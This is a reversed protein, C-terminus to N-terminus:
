KPKSSENWKTKHRIETPTFPNINTGKSRFKRLPRGSGTMNLRSCSSIGYPTKSTSRQLHTLSSRRVISKPTHPSDFLRLCNLKYELRRPSAVAVVPSTIPSLTRIQKSPPSTCMSEPSVCSSMKSQPTTLNEDWGDISSDMNNRSLSKSPTRLFEFNIEFSGDPTCLPTTMSVASDVGSDDDFLKVVCSDNDVVPSVTGQKVESYLEPPTCSDQPFVAM